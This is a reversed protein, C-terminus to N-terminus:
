SVCKDYKDTDIERLEVGGSHMRELPSGRSLHVIEPMVETRVFAGGSVPFTAVCGFFCSFCCAHATVGNAEEILEM